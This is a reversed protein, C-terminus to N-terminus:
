FPARAAPGTGATGAYRYVIWGRTGIPGERRYYRAVFSFLASMEPMVRYTSASVGEEPHVAWGARGAADLPPIWGNTSSTDLIVAPRYRRLDDLFGRIMAPSTYGSTILPYQYVFKGPAPRRSLFNVGANAGWVLVASGPPTTRELYAAALMQASPPGAGKDTNSIERMQNWLPLPIAMGVLALVAWVGLPASVPRVVALTLPQGAGGLTACFLGILLAFWPLWPTFYQVYPRGSASALVLEIPVALAILLLLGRAPGRTKGGALDLLALGLGALALVTVGVRNLLQLGGLVARRRDGLLVDAYVRNYTLVADLMAGLAGHAAFYAATAALPAAFGAAILALDRALGHWPRRRLGRILILLGAAVGAGVLNPKLLVLLAALAGVLLLAAPSYRGARESRWCLWIILLQPLLAYQEAYNGGALLTILGMFWFAAAGLAALRGLAEYAVAVLLVTAALLAAFEVLLVGRAHGGGILLGLANLYFVGPPKHDWMDRYPIAGQTIRWGTYLFVGSDRYPDVRLNFAPLMVYFTLAALLPVLVLAVIPLTRRAPAAVQPLPESVMRTCAKRVPLAPWM